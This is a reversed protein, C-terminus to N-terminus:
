HHHKHPAASEHHHAAKTDSHHGHDHSHPASKLNIMLRSLFKRPGLRLLSAGFLLVIAVLGLINVSEPLQLTLSSSLTLQDAVMLGVLLIGGLMLGQKWNMLKLQGISLVPAALLTFAVAIQSWGSYALALALIVTGLNCFRM